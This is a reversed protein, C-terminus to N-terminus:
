NPLEMGDRVKAPMSWASLAGERKRSTMAAIVEAFHVILKITGDCDHLDNHQNRYVKM